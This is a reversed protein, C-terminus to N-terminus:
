QKQRREKLTRMLRRNFDTKGAQKFSLKDGELAKEVTEEMQKLKYEEYEKDDMIEFKRINGVLLTEVSWLRFPNPFDGWRDPVFIADYDEFIAEYNLLPVGGYEAVDYGKRRWYREIKDTNDVCLIRSGKKPVLHYHQDGKEELCYVERNPREEGIETENLWNEWDTKGNPKVPSAWLGGTPKSPNGNGSSFYPSYNSIREFKRLTPKEEGVYVFDIDTFDLTEEKKAIKKAKKDAEQRVKDAKAAKLLVGKQEAQAKREKYIEGFLRESKESEELSHCLIGMKIKAVESSADGWANMVINHIQFKDMQKDFTLFNEIVTDLRKELKPQVYYDCLIGMAQRLDDSAAYKPERYWEKTRDKKQEFEERKCLADAAKHMVKFGRELLKPFRSMCVRVGNIAGEVDFLCKDYIDLAPEAAEVHNRVFMEINYCLTRKEASVDKEDTLREACKKYAQMVEKADEQSLLRGSDFSGIRVGAIFKTIELPPNEDKNYDQLLLLLNKPELDSLGRRADPFFKKVTKEMTEKKAWKDSRKKDNELSAVEKNYEEMLEKLM